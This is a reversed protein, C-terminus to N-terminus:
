QQAEIPAICDPRDFRASNVASGVRYYEFDGGGIPELLTRLSQADAKPNLWTAYDAPRLIVPMRHHLPQIWDPAETTILTCSPEAPAGPPCDEEWLGAFFFLGDDCRRIYHPLSQQGDKRWEFFGDAPILGNAILYIAGGTSPYIAGDTRLM